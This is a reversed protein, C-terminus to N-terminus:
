PNVTIVVANGLSLRVVMPQAALLRLLPPLLLLVSPPLGTMVPENDPIEAVLFVAVATARARLVLAPKPQPQLMRALRPASVTREPLEQAALSLRIAEPAKMSVPVLMLSVAVSFEALRGM